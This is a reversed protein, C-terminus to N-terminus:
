QNKLLTKMRVFVQNFNEKSPLHKNAVTITACHVAFDLSEQVTLGLLEGTVYGAILTDGSGVTDIVQVPESTTLFLEQRTMLAAGDEGLSLLVRNASTNRMFQNLEELLEEQNLDKKGILELFEEKNPKILYPNYKFSKKLAEGAMDVILKAGTSSIKEFIKDLANETEFRPPRGSFVVYDKQNITDLQDLFEKLKSSSILPGVSNLDTEIGSRIKINQRTNEKIETFQKFFSSSDLLNKFMTGTPGGLLGLCISNIGLYSLIVSVNVGKGGAFYSASKVSNIKGTALKDLEIYCDVSPNLTITYIM